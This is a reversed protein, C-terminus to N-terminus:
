AKVTSTSKDDEVWIGSSTSTSPSLPPAQAARPNQHQIIEPGGGYINHLFLWIDESIQGYESKPRLQTHSGRTIAIKSNDIPGPPDAFTSFFLAILDILDLHKGDTKRRVFLEWQKFWSLSIAYINGPSEHNEFEEQLRLFTDM